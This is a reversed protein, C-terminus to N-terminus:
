GRMAEEIAIRVIALWAADTSELAQREGGASGLVLAYRRPARTMTWGFGFMSVGILIMTAAMEVPGGRPGQGGKEPLASGILALLGLLALVGGVIMFTPAAYGGKSPLERVALSSIARIPYSVGDITAIDTTVLVREDFHIAETPM